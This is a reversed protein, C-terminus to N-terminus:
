TIYVYKYRKWYILNPTLPVAKPYLTKAFSRLSLKSEFQRTGGIQQLSQAFSRLSFKNEFQRTGGIKQLSVDNKRSDFVNVHM